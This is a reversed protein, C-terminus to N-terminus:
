AQRDAGIPEFRERKNSLFARIDAALREREGAAFTYQAGRVPAYPFAFQRDFRVDSLICVLRIGAPGEPYLTAAAHGVAFRVSADPLPAPQLLLDGRFGAELEAALERATREFAPAAPESEGPRRFPRDLIDVRFSPRLEASLLENWLTVTDGGLLTVLPLEDADVIRALVDDRALEALSQADCPTEPLRLTGSRVTAFADPDSPNTLAAWVRAGALAVIRDFARNVVTM